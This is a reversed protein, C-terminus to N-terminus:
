QQTGQAALLELPNQPTKRQPPTPIVARPDVGPYQQKLREWFAIFQDPTYYQGQYPVYSFSRLDDASGKGETYRSVAQEAVKYRDMESREQVYPLNITVPPALVGPLNLQSYLTARYAAANTAKLRRMQDTIGVFHDLAGLEPIFQEAATYWQGSGSPPAAQLTGTNVNYELNPYLSGTADLVNFGRATLPTTLMPNLSQFFGLLTFDNSFSRFPNLNRLDISKINGHSDPHGLFLTMMFKQPLLTNWDRREQDAFRSLVAARYPHDIPYTLMFRFMFKMFGYFPFVNKVITREIPALDDMNVAVKNMVAIAEEESMGRKVATLGASVRYMDSIMEEFQAMRRQVNAGTAQWFKSLINGHTAGISKAAVFDTTSGYLNKSGHRTLWDSRVGNKYDQMIRYANRFQLPSTPSRMMLAFLGGLGVHVLHRPGTLVSFRFVHLTGDWAGRLPLRQIGQERPMLHALNHAMWNPIYLDEGHYRGHPWSELGYQQPDIKTWSNDLLAKAHETIRWTPRRSAQMAEDSALKINEPVLDSATRAVPLIHDDLFMHTAEDRFVDIAAGTLGMAVNVVGPSFDTISRRFTENATIRDPLIAARHFTLRREASPDINKLWVPDLGQRILNLVSRVTDMRLQEFLEEGIKRAEPSVRDASDILAQKILAIDSYNNIVSLDKELQAYGNKLRAEIPRPDYLPHDPNALADTFQKERTAALRERLKTRILHSMERTGGLEGHKASQLASNYDDVAKAHDAELKQVHQLAMQYKALAPAIREIDGTQNAELMKRRAVNLTRKAGSKAQTIENIRRYAAHAPTNADLILRGKDYPVVIAGDKGGSKNYAETRADVIVQHAKRILQVIHENEPSVPIDGATQNSIEFLRQEDINGRKVEAYIDKMVHLAKHSAERELVTKGTIVRRADEGFGSANAIHYFAAQAGTMDTLSGPVTARYLARVPQGRRLAELASGVEAQRSILGVDGAARTALGTLKGAPAVDLAATVPHSQLYQRGQETTLGAIDAMGPILDLIPSKAIDRFSAAAQHLLSGQTTPEYGHATMWNPDSAHEMLAFTNTVESPLHHAFNIMGAPFGTILGGVDSPVSSITHIIDGFIGRHHQPNPNAIVSRGAAQALMAANVETTSMPSAGTNSVNQLDQQVIQAYQSPHLGLSQYYSIRQQWNSVATSLEPRAM